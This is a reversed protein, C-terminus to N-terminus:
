ELRVKFTPSGVTRGDRLVADVNWLLDSGKGTARLAADPVHLEVGRVGIAQHVVTLDHTLVTVNYSLAGPYESWRLVLDPAPQHDPSLARPGDSLVETQRAGREIASRNVQATRTLVVTVAAALAGVALVSATLRRRRNALFTVESRVQKPAEARVDRAIRWAESCAACAASHDTLRKLHEFSLEGAAGAWIEDPSPCAREDSVPVSQRFRERLDPMETM